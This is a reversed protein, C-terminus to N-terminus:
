SGLRSAFRLSRPGAPPATMRLCARSALPVGWAGQALAQLAELTGTGSARLLAAPRSDNLLEPGPRWPAEADPRAFTRPELASM